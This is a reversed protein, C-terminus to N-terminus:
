VPAVTRAALPPTMMRWCARARPVDSAPVVTTALVARWSLPSMVMTASGRDIRPPPKLEVLVPASRFMEPLLTHDPGTVSAALVRKVESLPVRVRPPILALVALTTNLPTPFMVVLPSMMPVVPPIETSLKPLVPAGAPIMVSLPASVTVPVMVIVLPVRLISPFRVAAEPAMMTPSPGACVPVKFILFPLKEVAVFLMMTPEVGAETVVPDEPVPMTLWLAPVRDVSPNINNPLIPVDAM